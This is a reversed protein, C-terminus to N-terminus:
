CTNSRKKLPTSSCLTGRSTRRRGDTTARVSNQWSRGRSKNKQWCRKGGHQEQACLVSQWWLLYIYNVFAGLSWRLSFSHPALLFSSLPNSPWSSLILWVLSNQVETSLRTLPCLQRRTCACTEYQPPVCSGWEAHTASSWHCVPAYLAERPGEAAPLPVFVARCAEAVTKTRKRVDSAETSSRRVCCLSCWSTRGSGEPRVTAAAAIEKDGDDEQYSRLYAAVQAQESAYKLMLRREREEKQRRYRCSSEEAMKQWPLRESASMAQWWAAGACVARVAM